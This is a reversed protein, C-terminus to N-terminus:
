DWGGLRQIFWTVGGGKGAKMGGDVLGENFRTQWRRQSEMERRGGGGDRMKKQHTQLLAIYDGARGRESKMGGSQWRGCSQPILGCSSFLAPLPHSRPSGEEGKHKTDQLSVGGEASEQGWWVSQCIRWNKISKKTVNLYFERKNKIEDWKNKGGKNKLCVM